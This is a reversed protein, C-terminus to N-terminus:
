KTTVQVLYEGNECRGAPAPGAAVSGKSLPNALTGVSKCADRSTAEWNCLLADGSESLSRKWCYMASGGPAAAVNTSGGGSSTQVGACASLILAASATVLLMAKM